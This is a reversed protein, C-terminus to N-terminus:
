SGPILDFEIILWLVVDEPTCDLFEIHDNVDVRPLHRWREGDQISSVLTHHDKLVGVGSISFFNQSPRRQSFPAASLKVKPTAACVRPMATLPTKSRKGPALTMIPWHTRKSERHPLTFASLDVCRHRSWGTCRM